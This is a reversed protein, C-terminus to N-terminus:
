STSFKVPTRQSPVATVTAPWTSSARPRIGSSPSVISSSPVDTVTSFTLGFVMTERITAGRAASTSPSHDDGPDDEEEDEQVGEEHRRLEGDDADGSRGDLVAGGLPALEGGRDQLNELVRAPLIAVDGGGLDADGEGAEAEAHVALLLEGGEQAAEEGLQAHVGPKRGVHRG